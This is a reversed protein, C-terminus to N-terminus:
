RYSTGIVFENYVIGLNRVEIVLVDNYGARISVSESDSYTDSRGIEQGASSYVFLDLDTDDDGDIEITVIQGEYVRLTYTNSCRAEVRDVQRDPVIAASGPLAPAPLAMSGAAVLSALVLFTTEFM